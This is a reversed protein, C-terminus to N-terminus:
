ENIRFQKIDWNQNEYKLIMCSAGGFTRTYGGAGPNIVWPTQQQDCVIHHSHGYIIINAHPFQDRLKDHRSQVKYFQHGHTVAIIKNDFSLELNDPIEALTPLDHSPWKEEIDNNGRVSFVYDAQTKLQGLVRADGIDGAHIIVDCNNFSNIVIDNLQNHTDSLVGVTIESKEIFDNLDIKKNV